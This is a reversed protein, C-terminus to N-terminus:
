CRLSALYEQKWPLQTFPVREDFKAITNAATQNAPTAAAGAETDTDGTHLDAYTDPVTVNWVV